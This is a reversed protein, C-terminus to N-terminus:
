TLQLPTHKSLTSTLFYSPRDSDGLKFHLNNANKALYNFDLGLKANLTRTYTWNWAYIRQKPYISLGSVYTDLSYGM